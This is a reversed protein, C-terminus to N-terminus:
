KILLAGLLIHPRLGFYFNSLIYITLTISYFISIDQILIKIALSVIPLLIIFVKFHSLMQKEFYIGYNMKKKIDDTKLVGVSRILNLFLGDSLTGLTGVLSTISIWLSYQNFAFRSVLFIILYNCAAVFINSFFNILIANSFSSKSAQM